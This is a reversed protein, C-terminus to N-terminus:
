EGGCNQASNSQCPVTCGGNSSASLPAAQTIAAGNDLSPGCFCQYGDEIGALYTGQGACYNLCTEINMTGSTSGTYGANLTRANPYLGNACGLTAWNAKQSGAPSYSQAARKELSPPAAQAIALLSFSLAIGFQM